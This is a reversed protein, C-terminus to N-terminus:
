SSNIKKKNQFKIYVPASPGCPFAPHAARTSWLVCAPASSYVSNVGNWDLTYLGWRPKVLTHRIDSRVTFETHERCETYQTRNVRHGTHWPGEWGGTSWYHDMPLGVGHDGYVTHATTVQYSLWLMLWILNIVTPFNKHWLFFAYSGGWTGTTFATQLM